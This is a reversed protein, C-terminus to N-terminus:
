RTCFLEQSGPTCHFGAPCNLFEPMGGPRCRAFGSTTRRCTFEPFPAYIGCSDGGGGGGGGGGAACDPPNLAFGGACAAVPAGSRDVTVCSNSAGCWGCGAIPTCDGCTM